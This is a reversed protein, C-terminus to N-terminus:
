TLQTQAAARLFGVFVPHPRSGGAGYLAALRSGPTFDVSIQREMLSCSLLTIVAM